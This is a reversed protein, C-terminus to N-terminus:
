SKIKWKEYAAPTTALLFALKVNRRMSSLLREIEDADFVQLRKRQITEHIDLQVAETDKSLTFKDDVVIGVSQLDPPIIQDGHVTKANLVLRGDGGTSCWFKYDHHFHDTNLPCTALGKLGAALYPSPSGDSAFGSLYRLAVTTLFCGRGALKTVVDVAGRMIRNFEVFNSYNTEYLVVSNQAVAVARRKDLSTFWWILNQTIRSPSTAGIKVTVNVQPKSQAVPMELDALAAKVVTIKEFIEPSQTFTIQALALMLPADEFECDVSPLESM